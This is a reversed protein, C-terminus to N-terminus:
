STAASSAGNLTVNLAARLTAHVHKVTKAMLGKEILGNVFTQVAQPGLKALRHHGLAPTVYLRLLSRYTDHTKPKVNPLVM